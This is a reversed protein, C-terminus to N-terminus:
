MSVLIFWWTRVRASLERYNEEPHRRVLLAVWATAASLLALLGTLIALVPFNVAEWFRM